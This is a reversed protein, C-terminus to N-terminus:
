YIQLDSKGFLRAVVGAHLAGRVLARNRASPNFLSLLAAGGCYLCKTLAVGAKSARGRGQQFLWRAHTQGARFSRKLLWGLHERAEPVGETVLADACYDLRAGRDALTHFFHTDEGGSRGLELEFRLGDVVSRRMIVNCTYGTEVRGEATRVAQTSHLDADKIWRPADPRYIAQVRGFVVDAKTSEMAAALAALWTPDAEEDDDIFAVLPAEAANLCANRALSINRAPAHVYLIDLGLEARLRDVLPQASPTEDNDAIIVRLRGAPLPELLAISRLTAELSPRRYTCVCVDVRPPASVGSGTNDSGQLNM